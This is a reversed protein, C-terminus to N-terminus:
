NEELEAIQGELRKIEEIEPLFSRKLEKAKM